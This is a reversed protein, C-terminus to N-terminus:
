NSGPRFIAERSGTEDATGARGEPLAKKSAFSLFAPEIARKSLPFDSNRCSSKPWRKLTKPPFVRHTNKPLLQWIPCKVAPRLGTWWKWSAATKRIVETGSKPSTRIITRASGTCSRTCDRPKTGKRRPFAGVNVGSLAELAETIGQVREELLRSGAALAGREEGSAALAEELGIQSAAREREVADIKLSVQELAQALEARTSAVEEQAGAGAEALATVEQRVETVLAEVEVAGSGLASSDAGIGGFGCAGGACTSLSSTGPSLTADITRSM